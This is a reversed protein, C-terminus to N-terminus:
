VLLCLWPAAGQAIYILQEPKSKPQNLVSNTKLQNSAAEGPVTFGTEMFPKKCLPRKKSEYTSRSSTVCLFFCCCNCLCHFTRTLSLSPRFVAPLCIYSLLFTALHQAALSFASPCSSFTWPLFFCYLSPLCPLFSFSFFALLFSDSSM